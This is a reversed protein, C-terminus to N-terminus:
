GVCCNDCACNGETDATCCREPECGTTSNCDGDRVGPFVEASLTEGLRHQKVSVLQVNAAHQVSVRYVSHGVFGKHAMAEDSWPHIDGIVSDASIILFSARNNPNRFLKFHKEDIFEVAGHLYHFHTSQIAPAVGASTKLQEINM